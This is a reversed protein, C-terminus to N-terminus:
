VCYRTERWTNLGSPGPGLVVTRTIVSSPPSYITGIEWPLYCLSDANLAACELPLREFCTGFGARHFPPTPWYALSISIRWPYGFMKPNYTYSSYQRPKIHSVPCQLSIPINQIFFPHVSRHYFAFFFQTIRFSRMPLCPYVFLSILVTCYYYIDFYSRLLRM